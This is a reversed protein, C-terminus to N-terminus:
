LNTSLYNFVIVVIIKSFTKENLVTVFRISFMPVPSPKSKPKSEAPCVSGFVSAVETQGFRVSM